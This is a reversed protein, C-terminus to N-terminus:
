RRALKIGEYMGWMEAHFADCCPFGDVEVLSNVGSGDGNVCCCCLIFWGIMWIKVNGLVLCVNFGRLVLWGNLCCLM